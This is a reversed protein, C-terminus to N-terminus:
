DVPGTRYTTMGELWGGPAYNELGFLFGAETEGFIRVADAIVGIESKSWVLGDSSQYLETRSSAPGSARLRALDHLPIVLADGGDAPEVTITRDAPNYTASPPRHDSGPSRWGQWKPLRAREESGEEVVVFSTSMRITLDGSAVSQVQSTQFEPRTVSSILGSPGAEIVPYGDNAFMETPLGIRTQIGNDFVVLDFRASPSFDVGV